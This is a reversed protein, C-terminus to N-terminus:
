KHSILRKLDEVRFRLRRRLKHVQVIDRHAMIRLANPTVGLYKAAEDTTLYQPNEDREINYGQFKM